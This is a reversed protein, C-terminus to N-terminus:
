CAKIRDNTMGVFTESPKAEKLYREYCILAIECNGAKEYAVGIKYFLVADKTLEHALAFDHAASRYHGDALESSAGRYIEAAHALEPTAAPEARSSVQASVITFFGATLTAPRM